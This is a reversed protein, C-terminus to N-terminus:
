AKLNRDYLADNADAQAVADFIQRASAGAGINDPTKRSFLRSVFEVRDSSLEFLAKYMLQLQLNGRRIDVIFAMSPQVAAIYTFNQEPGVGLYARGHPVTRTLEPIVYQLRLENSLLNESRFSGGPESLRSVLTWFEQDTLRAPLAGTAAVTSVCAALVAAVLTAPMLRWGRLM